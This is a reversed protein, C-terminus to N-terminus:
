AHGMSARTVLLCNNQHLSQNLCNKSGAYENQIHIFFIEYQFKSILDVLMTKLIRMEEGVRGEMKAEQQCEEQPIDQM